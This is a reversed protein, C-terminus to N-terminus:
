LRVIYRNLRQFFSNQQAADKKPGGRPAQNQRGIRAYQLEDCPVACLCPAANCHVSAGHTLFIISLAEEDLSVM